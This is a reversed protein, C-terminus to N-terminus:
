CINRVPFSSRVLRYYVYLLVASLKLFLFLDYGGREKIM